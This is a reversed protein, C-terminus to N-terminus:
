GRLMHLLCPLWRPIGRVAKYNMKQAFLLLGPQPLGQERVPCGHARGCPLPVAMPVKPTLGSRAGSGGAPGARGAAGPATHCSDGARQPKKGALFNM